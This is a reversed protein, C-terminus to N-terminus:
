VVAEGEVCVCEDAGGICDFSVFDCIAFEFWCGKAKGQARGQKIEIRNGSQDHLKGEM